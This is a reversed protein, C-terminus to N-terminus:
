KTIFHDLLKSAATAFLAAVGAAVMTARSKFNAHDNLAKEHESLRKEHDDVRDFIGGRGSIREEIRVVADCIKDLKDQDM